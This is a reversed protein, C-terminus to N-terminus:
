LEQTFLGHATCCYLLTGHAFHPLRALLEWEPYLRKVILTDGTLFALFAICDARRKCNGSRRPVSLM